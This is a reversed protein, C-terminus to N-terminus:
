DEEVVLDVQVVGVAQVVMKTTMAMRVAVATVVMVAMAVADQSFWINSSEILIYYNQSVEM